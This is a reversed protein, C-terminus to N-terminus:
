KLMMVSVDGSGIDIEIESTREGDGFSVKEDYVEADFDTKFNGSGMDLEVEFGNVKEPLFIVTSGSGMEFHVNRPAKVFKSVSNGSGSDVNFNDSEGYFELNGSGSDFIFEDSTGNFNLNGSGAEFEGRKFSCNLISCNGSGWDNKFCDSKIGEVSVDSSGTNIDIIKFGKAIKSPVSVTLNKEDNASYKVNDGMYRIELENGSTRYHIQKEESWSGDEYISIATDDTEKLVINGCVWDLYIIEIGSVDISANGHSYPVDSKMSTPFKSYKYVSTEFFYDVMENVTEGGNAKDMQQSEDIEPINASNIRDKYLVGFLIGSVALIAICLSIIKIVALKKMTM